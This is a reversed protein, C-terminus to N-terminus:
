FFVGNKEQSMGDFHSFKGAINTSGLLTDDFHDCFCVVVKKRRFSIQQDRAKPAKSSVSSDDLDM